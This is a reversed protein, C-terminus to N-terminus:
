DDLVRHLRHHPQDIMEVHEIVPPHNGAALRISDDTVRPHDFGIEALFPALADGARRVLRDIRTLVFQMTELLLCQHVALFKRSARHGLSQRKACQRQGRERDGRRPRWAFDTLIAEIAGNDPGHARCPWSSRM